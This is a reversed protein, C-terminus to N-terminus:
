TEPVIGKSMLLTSLIHLTKHKTVLNNIATIEPFAAMTKNQHKKGQIPVVPYPKSVFLGVLDGIPLQVFEVGAGGGQHKIM